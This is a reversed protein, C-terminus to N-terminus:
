GAVLAKSLGDLTKQLVERWRAGLRKRDLRIQTPGIKVLAQLIGLRTREIRLGDRLKLVIDGNETVVASLGASMAAMKVKVGFLLNKVEEPPPGFRDELERAIDEVEQTSDAKTLRHYFALRSAVDEIYDTPIHAPLPLDINPPALHPTPRPVEGRLKVKLEQVAEALMQCYLDFGVAVIHGSQESGLLNGAGRIELDKMAIKFGAGLETAEYITELRKEATETLSKGKAYLFYAYARHAGRGVRGRLQYLQTLGFRDADNIILTNVNPIDLGSEIITSCVLVDAEGQAFDGMVQELQEEPMQGHGVLIRAEPILEELRQAIRGITQVRNHVFFVQGNREMERLIAERVLRESYEAVYTKIPLREEPPTEMTSMDRVGVLSMHLTRPIPTASLTLVDVEKRMQKLREKHAVGFRQEEDIIVLGLNKFAVDKQLLRHTGICIDIAGEKLSAVIEQQERPSRFRSLMEVKMPFAALRQRFTNLHQQALVTTPVLVAVQRGDMVAKFAGRLAVETKGYGVDGCVLRDMPKSREMDEKVQRVAELQDPTEVYPFSAEMEQQWPTDAPYAHGPVVERSAYLDLLEKAMEQTAQKARARTRLWEQTGLRSLSPIAGGPGIYRSVRDIQDAPVYLKDGEAYQLVLYEREGATRARPEAGKDESGLRVMGAFRAVGHDVHVVYDGVTVESLFPQRRVPHRTLARRQKVFSFIEADTLLSVAGRTATKMVWGEAPGSRASVLSLAGPPPVQDLRNLPPAIIDADQLVESLRPGQQSVIVVAQKQSLSQRVGTVFAAWQGGYSPAPSFDFTTTGESVDTGEWRSLELQRTLRESREKLEAWTFYPVPFGPPLEGSAQHARRVEGARDDLEALAAEIESAEDWVILGQAPLYDLVAGSNSLPAYFEMTPSWQGQLLQEVEQQFTQRGEPPMDEVRLSKLIGEVPNAGDLLPLLMERAPIVNVSNAPQLSRQTAPDFFRLSDIKNGLLEIRVPRAAGIPFIDLIGGRRSASGPVEVASEMRYGMREWRSLLDRLDISTGPALTHHVSHFDPASVTKQAVAWAPAVILPPGKSGSAAALSGLAALREQTTTPDPTLREYPLADPEPFFFVPAAEWALLQEYLRKAGEPRATVLIIPARLERHLTAILYPKAAELITASAGDRSLMEMILHYAPM